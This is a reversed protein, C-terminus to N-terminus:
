GKLSKGDSFVNIAIGIISSKTLHKNLLNVLIHVSLRLRNLIVKILTSIQILILKSQTQM